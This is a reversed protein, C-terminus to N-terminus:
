KPAICHLMENKASNNSDDYWAKMILYPQNMILKQVYNTDTLECLKGDEGKIKGFRLDSNSFISRIDEHSDLADQMKSLLKECEDSLTYPKERMIKFILRRYSELAPCEKM